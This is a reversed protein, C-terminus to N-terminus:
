CLPVWCPSEGPRLTPKWLATPLKPSPSAAPALDLLASPEAPSDPARADRLADSIADQMLRGRSRSSSTGHSSRAEAAPKSLPSGGDRAPRCRLLASRRSGRCLLAAMVPQEACAKRVASSRRQGRGPSSSSRASPDTRDMCPSAHVDCSDTQLKRSDVADQTTSAPQQSRPAPLACGAPAAASESGPPAELAQAASVPSGCARKSPSAGDECDAPRKSQPWDSSVDMRTAPPSSCAAAEPRTAQCAAESESDSSCALLASRRLWDSSCDGDVSGHERSLSVTGDAEACRSDVCSVAPPSDRLTRGLGPLLALPPTPPSPEAPSSAGNCAREIGSLQLPSRNPPVQPLPPSVAALPSAAPSAALLQLPPTLPSACSLLLGSAPDCLPSDASLIACDKSLALQQTRLPTGDDVNAVDQLSCVLTPDPAATLCAAGPAFRVHDSSYTTGLASQQSSPVAAQVSAVSAAVHASQDADDAAAGAEEAEEAEEAGAAARPTASQKDAASGREDHAAEASQAAAAALAACRATAPPPMSLPPATTDLSLADRAATALEPRPSAIPTTLPDTTAALVTHAPWPCAATVSPERRLDDAPVHWSSGIAQSPAFSCAATQTAAAKVAPPTDPLLPQESCALLSAACLASDAAAKSASAAHRSSSPARAACALDTVCAPASVAQPAHPATACEHLPAAPASEAAACTALKITSLVTAAACSTSRAQSITAPASAVRASAPGDAALQPGSGVFVNSPQLSESLSGFAPPEDLLGQV